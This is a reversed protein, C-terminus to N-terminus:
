TTQLTTLLKNTKMITLFYLQSKQLSIGLIETEPVLASNIQVHM